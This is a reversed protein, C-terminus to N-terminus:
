SGGILNMCKQIIQNIKVCKVYQSWRKPGFDPEQPPTEEVIIWLKYCMSGDLLESKKTWNLGQLIIQPTSPILPMTLLSKEDTVSVLIGKWMPDHSCNFQCIFHCTIMNCFKGTLGCSICVTEVERLKYSEKFIMLTMFTPTKIPLCVKSWKWKWSMATPVSQMHRIWVTMANCCTTDKRHAIFFPTGKNLGSVM